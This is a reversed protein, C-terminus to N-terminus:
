HALTVATASVTLDDLTYSSTGRDSDYGFAYVNLPTAKTLTIVTAGSYYSDVNTNPGSELAGSGVNFLDGAWGKAPVPGAYVFFQPFVQVPSTVEAPAKPAVPTAKANLTILYTGPKLTVVGVKTANTKFPGGTTVTKGGLDTVTTVAPAPAPPVPTNFSRVYEGSVKPCQDADPRYSYTNGNAHSQVFCTYMTGSGVVPLPKPATAADAFTLGGALAFLAALGTTVGIKTLKM